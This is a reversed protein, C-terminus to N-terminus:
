VHARGIKFVQTKYELRRFPTTHLIRDRDRQFCTRYETEDEPYLRGRSDKSHIGYPALGHDEMEELQARTFLM